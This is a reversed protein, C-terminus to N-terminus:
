KFAKDYTADSYITEADINQYRSTKLRLYLLQKMFTNKDILNKDVTKKVKEKIFKYVVDPHFIFDTFFFYYEHATPVIRAEFFGKKVFGHNTRAEFVNYKESTFVDQVVICSHSTDKLYEFLSLNTNNLHYYMEKGDVGAPIQELYMQIPTKLSNHLTRDLIYWNLFFNMLTEYFEEGPQVDGIIELFEKKATKIEELYEDKTFAAVLAEYSDKYLFDSDM